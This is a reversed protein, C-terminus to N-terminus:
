KTFRNLSSSAFESHILFRSSIMIFDTFDLSSGINRVVVIVERPRKTRAYESSIHLAKARENAPPNISPVVIVSIKM